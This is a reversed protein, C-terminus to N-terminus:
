LAFQPGQAQHVRSRRRETGTYHEALAGARQPDHFVLQVISTYLIQKYDSLSFIRNWMFRRSSVSACSQWRSTQQPVLHLSTVLLTTSRGCDMAVAVQALEIGRCSEWRATEMRWRMEGEGRAPSPRVPVEAWVQEYDVNRLGEGEGAM